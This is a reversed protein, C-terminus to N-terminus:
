KEVYVSLFVCVTVSVICVFNGMQQNECKPQIDYVTPHLESVRPLILLTPSLAPSSVLVPFNWCNMEGRSNSAM